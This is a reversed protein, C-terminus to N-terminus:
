PVEQAVPQAGAGAAALLAAVRELLVDPKVPKELLDQAAIFDRDVSRGPLLFSIQESMGTIMLVPMHQLAPDERINRAMMVGEAGRGMMIDLLLLDYEKRDLAQWGDTRTHAVDVQYGAGALIARVGDVYDRDDDIILLRNRESM